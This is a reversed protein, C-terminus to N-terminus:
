AMPRGSSTTADSQPAAKDIHRRGTVAFDKSLREWDLQPNLALDASKASEPLRKVSPRRPPSVMSGAPGVIIPGTCTAPIWAVVVLGSAADVVVLLQLFLDLVGDSVGDVMCRPRLPVSFSQTRQNVTALMLSAFGGSAALLPQLVRLHCALKEQTAM